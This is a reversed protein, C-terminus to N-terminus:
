IASKQNGPFFLHMLFDPLSRRIRTGLIPFTFGTRLRASPDCVQFVSPHDGNNDCEGHTPSRSLRLRCPFHCPYSIRCRSARVGGIGAEHCQPFPQLVETVDVTFIDQKLIAAGLSLPITYRPEYGFEAV